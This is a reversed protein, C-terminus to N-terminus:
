IQRMDIKVQKYNRILSLLHPEVELEFILWYLM